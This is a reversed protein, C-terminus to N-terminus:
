QGNNGVRRLGEVQRAGPLHGQVALVHAHGLAPGGLGERIGQGQRAAQLGLSEAVIGAHVRRPGGVDHVPRPPGRRVECGVALGAVHLDGAPELGPLVVHAHGPVAARHVHGGGPGTLTQGQGQLADVPGRAQPEVAGFDAALVAERRGVDVVQRSAQRRAAVGQAQADVVAQQHIDAVPGVADAVVGLGVPVADDSTQRHRGGRRRGDGVQPGEGVHGGAGHAHLHVHGGDGRSGALDAHAVLAGGHGPGGGAARGRERHGETSIGGQPVLEVRDQVWQGHVERPVLRVVRARHGHAQALHAPRGLPHQGDVALVDEQAAGEFAADEGLRAVRGRVHRGPRADEVDAAVVAQVVQAEMGPARWRRGELRRVLPAEVQLHFDRGPALHAFALGDVRPDLRFGGADDGLVAIVRGEDQEHDTVFHQGVALGVLAAVAQQRGPAGGPGGPVRAAEVGAGGQGGAHGPILEAHGAAGVALLGPGRPGIGASGCGQGVEDMFHALVAHERVEADQVTGHAEQLGLVELDEAVAQPGAAQLPLRRLEEVGRALELGQAVLLVDFGDQARGVHRAVLQEVEVVEGALARGQDADEIGLPVLLAVDRGGLVAAEGTCGHHQRGQRPDQGVVLPHFDGQAEAVEPRRCQALHRRRPGDHRVIAAHHRLTMQGWTVQGPAPGQVHAAKGDVGQGGAAVAQLHLHIGHGVVPGDVDNGGRGGDVDGGADFQGGAGRIGHQLAHGIAGGDHQAGGVQAYVLRRAGEHGHEPVALPEGTLLGHGQAQEQIGAMRGQSAEGGGVVGGPHPLVHHFPGRAQRHRAPGFGRDDRAPDVVPVGAPGQREDGFAADAAAAEDDGRHISLLIQPFAGGRAVQHTAQQGIGGGGGAGGGM